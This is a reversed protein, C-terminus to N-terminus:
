RLALPLIVLVHDPRIIAHTCPDSVYECKGDMAEARGRGKHVLGENTEVLM